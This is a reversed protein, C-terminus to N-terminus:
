FVHLLGPYAQWTRAAHRSPPKRMSARAFCTAHNRAADGRTFVFLDNDLMNTSFDGVIPSPCCYNTFMAEAATKALKSRQAQERHEMYKEESVCPPRQPKGSVRRHPRLLFLTHPIVVIHRVCRLEIALFTNLSGIGAPLISCPVTRRFFYGCGQACTKRGIVGVRKGVNGAEFGAGARRARIALDLLLKQGRRCEVDRQLRGM